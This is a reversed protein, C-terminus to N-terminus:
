IAPCDNRRGHVVAEVWRGVTNHINFITPNKTNDINKQGKKYMNKLFKTACMLEDSYIQVFIHCFKVTHRLIEPQGSHKRLGPVINAPTCNAISAM